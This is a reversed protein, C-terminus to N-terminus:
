RGFLQVLYHLESEWEEEDAVTQRVEERILHRLRDRLRKAAVRLAGETMELGQAAERYGPADADRYM